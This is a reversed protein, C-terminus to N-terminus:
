IKGWQRPICHCQMPSWQLRPNKKEEQELCDRHYAHRRCSMLRAYDGISFYDGCVFCTTVIPQPWFPTQLQLWYLLPNAKIWRKLCHRHFPTKENALWEMDQGEAFTKNCWQCKKYKQPKLYDRTAVISFLGRPNACENQIKTILAMIKDYLPEDDKRIDEKNLDELFRLRYPEGCDIILLALDISSWENILDNKVIWRKFSKYSDISRAEFVFDRHQLRRNLNPYGDSNLPLTNNAVAKLHKNLEKYWATYSTQPRNLERAPGM